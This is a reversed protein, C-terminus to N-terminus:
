KFPTAPPATDAPDVTKILEPTLAGNTTVLKTQFM